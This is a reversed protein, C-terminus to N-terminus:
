MAEIAHAVQQDDPGARRDRVHPLVGIISLGMQETVQDPHHVRPDLRDVVVAAVMGLSLGVVFGFAVLRSATNKAAEQPSVAADLVQVDAVTSAEGLRAENYRQRLARLEARKTTLESLAQKQDLSQQVAGIAALADISAASDHAQTLVHAVALQDRRMQDYAMRLGFFESMPSQVGAAAAAAAGPDPPLTITRTRFAEYASEARQLSARASQLAEALLAALESLKARETKLA